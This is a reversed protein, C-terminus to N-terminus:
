KTTFAIIRRRTAHIMGDKLMLPKQGANRAAITRAATLVIQFIAVASAFCQGGAERNIELGIRKVPQELFLPVLSAGDDIEGIGIGRAHPERRDRPRDVAVHGALIRVRAARPPGSLRHGLVVARAAHVRAIGVAHEEGRARAFCVRM